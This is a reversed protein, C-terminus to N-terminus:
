QIPCDASHRNAVPSPSPSPSEPCTASYVWTGACATVDVQSVCTTETTCSGICTGGNVWNVPCEGSSGLNECYNTTYCIGTPCTGGEEFIGLCSAQDVNNSCGSVRDCSGIVTCSAGNSWQGFIASCSAEYYANFCATTTCTGTPPCPADNAFVNNIGCSMMAVNEGCTNSDVYVCSGTCIANASFTGFCTAETVGDICSTGVVCKGTVDSQAAVVGVLWCVLLAHFPEM